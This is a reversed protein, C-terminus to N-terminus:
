GGTARRAKARYTCYECHEAPRPASPSLATAIITPIATDIWETTGVYEMLKREFFLNGNLFGGEKKAYCYVLYAKSNVTFGNKRLLWQYFELQRKYEGNIETKEKGGTAKYDVVMLEGNKHIWVDDVAGFFLCDNTIDHWQIGTFPNRWSDLLEHHFPIAPIGYEQMLPHPLGKRRCYDFEEKLLTDIVTNITFPPTAPRPINKHVYLWFCVPCKFYLEIKSRSLKLM